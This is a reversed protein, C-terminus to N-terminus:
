FDQRACIRSAIVVSACATLFIAMLLVLPLPGSLFSVEPRFDPTGAGSMVDYIDPVFKEVGPLDVLVSYTVVSMLSVLGAMYEGGVFVSVLLGLAFFLAGCVIWLLSFQLAQSLPYSEHIFPSVAPLVLAPLSSLAAVEVLGVAARSVLLRSRSVPLVLTFGATGHARERLLGGLGLLVASLVFFDRLGGHYIIRWIYEAYSLQKDAFAARADQNYLVLGVCAGVITLASLLFRTRSERWAKYWLM